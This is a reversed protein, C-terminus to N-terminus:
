WATQLAYAPVPRHHFLLNPLQIEHSRAEPSDSGTLCSLNSIHTYCINCCINCSLNRGFTIFACSLLTYVISVHVSVSLSLTHTHLQVFECPLLLFPSLTYKMCRLPVTPYSDGSPCYIHHATQTENGLQSVLDVPGTGQKSFINSCKCTQVSCVLTHIYMPLATSCQHRMVM